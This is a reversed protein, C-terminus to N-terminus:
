VCTSSAIAATAASTRPRSARARLLHQEGPRHSRLRERLQELQEARLRRHRQRDRDPETAGRSPRIRRRTARGSRDSPGTESEALGGDETLGRPDIPYIVVNNRTAATIARHLDEEALSLTGGRYDMSEPLDGRAYGQSFLLLAKRRGHVTAMYEVIERFSSMAERLKFDAEVNRSRSRHHGAEAKHRRSHELQLQSPMRIRRHVLRSGPAATAPQEDAGAGELPRCPRPLRRRRPREARLVARPLPPRIAAHAPDARRTVQDLAIVYLRGEGQNNSQM